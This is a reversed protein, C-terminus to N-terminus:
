GCRILSASGEYHVPFACPYLSLYTGHFSKEPLMSQQYRQQCQHQECLERRRCANPGKSEALMGRAFHAMQCGFYRKARGKERFARIRSGDAKAAMVVRFVM